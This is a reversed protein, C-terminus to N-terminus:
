GQRGAAALAPEQEAALFERRCGVTLLVAIVAAIACLEFGLAFSKTVDALVGVVLPGAVSGLVTVMNLLGFITGYQKLGLSNMTILPYLALPSGWGLGFILLFLVLVVSSQSYVLLICGVAVMSFALVQAAKAGIRDALIGFVPKGIATIGFTISLAIAARERSYGISMLYIMLETVPAFVAFTWFAALPVLLWFTRTRVSEALTLGQLAESPRGGPGSAASTGAEAEAESPPRLRIFVIVLPIIVVLMPVALVVYATRWGSAATVLAVVQVTIMGGASAGIMALGMALGRSRKFWNGVVAAAPVTTALGTGLGAVLYVGVFTEFSHARSAVLLAAGALASGIVIPTRAGIRDLMWGSLLYGCGIGVSIISALSSVRARSWGFEKALPPLFAAVSGLSGGWVSILTLVFVAVILWARFERNTM